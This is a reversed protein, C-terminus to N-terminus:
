LVAGAAGRLRGGAGPRPRAAPPLRPRRRRRPARVAEAVAEASGHPIVADILRDSGGDAVDRETFGFRM